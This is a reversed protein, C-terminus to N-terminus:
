FHAKWLIVWAGVAIGVVIMSVGLAMAESDHHQAALAWERVGLLILGLTGGGIIVGAAIDWVM